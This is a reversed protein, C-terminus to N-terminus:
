FVTPGLRKATSKTGTRLPVAPLGRRSGPSTSRSTPTSSARPRHQRPTVPRPATSTDRFIDGKSRLNGNVAPVTRQLAAFTRHPAVAVPVVARQASAATSSTYHYYVTKTSMSTSSSATAVVTSHAGAAALDVSFGRRMRSRPTVQSVWFNDVLSLLSFNIIRVDVGMLPVLLRLFM